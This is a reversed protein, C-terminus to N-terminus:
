IFVSSPLFFVLEIKYCGCYIAHNSFAHCSTGYTVIEFLCCRTVLPTAHHGTLLVSSHFWCRNLLATIHCGTLLVYVTEGSVATKM